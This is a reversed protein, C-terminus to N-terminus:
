ALQSGHHLISTCEDYLADHLFGVSLMRGVQPLGEPLGRVPFIPHVRPLATGRRSLEAAETGLARGVTDNWEKAVHAGARKLWGKLVTEQILKKASSAPM